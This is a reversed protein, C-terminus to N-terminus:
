RKVFSRLGVKEKQLFSNDEPIRLVVERGYTKFDPLKRLRTPTEVIRSGLGTVVGSFKVEPLKLSYVTMSDGVAVNMTQDEHVYGRVINSHPAYFTLLTQYSQVHEQERVNLNGILGDAPASVTFPIVKQDEDFAMEAELRRVQERYPNVGLRLERKLSEEKAQTATKERQIEERLRTIKTEMPRYDAEPVKITQLGESLSKKYALEEVLEGLRSEMEAVKNDTEGAKLSLEDRKRQTWLRQEARLEDIRYEQDALIEKSKRRSVKLLPEGVRVSQGPQVMIQDVVVPYNYNVATEDSEAFGFFSLETNAPPQMLFYLGFGALLIAPYFLNIRM